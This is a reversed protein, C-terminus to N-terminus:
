IRPTKKHTPRAGEKPKAHNIRDFVPVRELMKKNKEEPTLLHPPRALKEQKVREKAQKKKQRETLPRPPIEPFQEEKVEERHLSRLIKKNLQQRHHPLDKM